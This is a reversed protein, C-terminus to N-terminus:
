VLSLAAPCIGLGISLTLRDARIISQPHALVGSSHGASVVFISQWRRQAFCCLRGLKIASPHRWSQGPITPYGRPHSSGFLVRCCVLRKAAVLWALRTCRLCCA